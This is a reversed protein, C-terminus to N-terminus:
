IVLHEGVFRIGSAAILRRQPSNKQLSVRGSALWIYEAHMADLLPASGRLWDRLWRHKEIVDQVHHSAAPHVEVWHIQDNRKDLARGIEYDWRAANPHDDRLARDLHVSGRLRRSEQSRIRARDAPDIAQLGACCAASLGETGVVAAQFRMPIRAGKSQSIVDAVVDAARGSFDTLGGWGAVGPDDNGPDLESINRTEHTFGDFYYVRIEKKLVATALTKMQQTPKIDLLQLLFKQDADQNRIVSLAWVLDLVHPSHTSLCVRYGRSLLDLVLLLVVSIAQPHLGMELEEIVVWRVSGRRASKTPPLLWYFGLLLPVFERQGASWVMFPLPPAGPSTRLVLRKQAGYQDVELTFGAFVSEQLLVREQAKLRRTQPFLSEARGLGLEMLRRIKESFDRVVFPDGPSYDSFTRPWGKGLTLVRQAPIFFLSEKTKRQRKVLDELHVVEENVALRSEDERWVSSMGEGLFSDLFTGVKKDWELGQRKMEALTPGTDVLLKLFQLLISKGTAQPGVFVTLDGFKVMAHALPGLRSAELSQVKM